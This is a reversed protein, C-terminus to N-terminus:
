GYNRRRQEETTEVLGNRMKKDGGQLFNTTESKVGTGLSGSLESNMINCNEGVIAPNVDPTM